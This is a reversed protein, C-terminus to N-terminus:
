KITSSPLLCLDGQKDIELLILSKNSKISFIREEGDQSLQCNPITEVATIKSGIGGMYTEIADENITNDKNLPVNAILNCMAAAKTKFGIFKLSKVFPILGEKLELDTNGVGVNSAQILYNCLTNYKSFLEVCIEDKQEPTMNKETYKSIVTSYFQYYNSFEEVTVAKSIAFQIAEQNVKKTKSFQVQFRYLSLKERFNLGQFIPHESIQNDSLFATNSDLQENSLLKYKSQVTTVESDVNGAIKISEQLTNLDSINLSLAKNINMQFNDFKLMETNHLGLHIMQLLEGEGSATCVISKAQTTAWNLWEYGDKILELFAFFDKSFSDLSNVQQGSVVIM